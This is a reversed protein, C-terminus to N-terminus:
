TDSAGVFIQQQPYVPLPVAKPRLGNQGMATMSLALYDLAGKGFRLNRYGSTERIIPGMSRDETLEVGDVLDDWLV